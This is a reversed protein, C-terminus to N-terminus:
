FGFKPDDEVTGDDVAVLLDPPDKIARDLVARWVLRADDPSLRFVAVHHSRGRGGVEYFLVCFRQSLAVRELRRRPLGPKRVVDTVQWEAGPEAMTFPEEGRAKAFAVRVPIPIAGVSARIQYGSADKLSARVEEPLHKVASFLRSSGITLLTALLIAAVSAIRM